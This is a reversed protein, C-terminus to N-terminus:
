AQDRLFRAAAGKEHFTNGPLRFLRSARCAKQPSESLERMRWLATLVCAMTDDKGGHLLIPRAEPDAIVEFFRVREEENPFDGLPLRLYQVGMEALVDREEEGEEAPVLPRIDLVAKLKHVKVVRRLEIMSMLSSRYLLGPRIISFRREAFHWWSYAVLMCLTLIVGVWAAIM